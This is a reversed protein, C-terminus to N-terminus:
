VNQLEEKEVVRVLEAEYFKGEIPKKNANIFSYTPPNM